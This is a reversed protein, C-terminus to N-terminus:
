VPLTSIVNIALKGYHEISVVATKIDPQSTEFVSAPLDRYFWSFVIVLDGYENRGPTDLRPEGIEVSFRNVFCYAIIGAKLPRSFTLAM